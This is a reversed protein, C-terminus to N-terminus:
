GIRPPHMPARIPGILRSGAGVKNTKMVATDGTMGHLVKSDSGGYDVTPLKTPRGRRTRNEGRMQGSTTVFDDGHGAVPLQPRAIVIVVWLGLSSLLAAADILLSILWITSGVGFWMQTQQLVAIDFGMSGIGSLERPRVNEAIVEV